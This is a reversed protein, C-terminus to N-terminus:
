TKVEFSLLVTGGEVLDGEQFFIEGITGIAPAQLRHEMKMAEMILLDDGAAVKDGAKALISIIRGHMPAKFHAASEVDVVGIDTAKLGFCINGDPHLLEFCVPTTDPVAIITLCLQWTQSKTVIDASLMLGELKGSLRFEQEGNRVILEGSADDRTVPLSLHQENLTIELQEKPTSNLRWGLGYQWVGTAATPSCWHPLYQARKLLLYLAALPVALGALEHSEPPPMLSDKHRDIFDTTVDASQFDPHALTRRLFPINTAIGAIQCEDLAKRMHSIAADRNEGWAILKFIMSDYYASIEDGERVGSDIRIRRDTKPLSLHHIRGSQPLFGTNPDEACVRVELAHGTPNLDSQALTLPEGAAIRVQWEVLDEGSIMETVPHEVQLRTNMEMFYYDGNTDLLFEFTGVGQYSINLSANIAAEGMTQRLKATLKPAPAEEIVKQHRRQCSCDRDFFYLAKGHKDLVVQVEVHRPRIIQKEIIMRDDGFSSTAERQASELVAQFEDANNLTRIGKGGGGATAKLLVPYGIDDAERILRKTNQDDGHYGPIIPLGAAEMRTKAEAKSAMIKMAAAPPGIFVIGADTCASAFEAHEALFGYGPHIAGAGSAKAAAIIREIRLYSESPSPPGIAIAEDALEVHQAHRDVDSYVAVSAVGMQSLTRIIRCAIEGRNAILVKTFM